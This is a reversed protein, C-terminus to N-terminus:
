SRLKIIESAALLYAGVGYVSSMEKTVQKPDAGIPQIWGLKGDADVFSQLTTWSKELKPLYHKKDLINENIGYALAYTILASASTEPSPYSIPDLLSAHWYGEADMLEILTPVFEKYLDLYYNYYLSKKPLSKLINTLAAAVWGNGRGWFVPKGNSELKEFYSSDRYFLKYEKNYLHNVTRQFEEHMFDIYKRDGYINYLEVYAMPAMFLADCWTWSQKNRYTMTHDPQNDIIWDLREKTAKIRRNEDKLHYMKLYFQAICLEDAHYLSYNPYAKFNDPIRWENTEAIHELWKTYETAKSPNDNAITNAWVSLGLLFTSNTWADIGYDHLYGPGGELSYKFNNIQWDATQNVKSIYDDKGTSNIYISKDSSCSSNICIFLLAYLFLTKTNKM